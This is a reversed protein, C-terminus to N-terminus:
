GSFIKNLETAM